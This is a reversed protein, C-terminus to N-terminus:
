KLTVVIKHDENSMQIVADKWKPPGFQSTADRSTGLPESPTGYFNMDLKQNDNLDQYLSVAYEGRPLDKFTVTTTPLTTVINKAQVYRKLFDNQNQYLGVRIQGGAKQIGVVDVTLTAAHSLPTILLALLIFQIKM